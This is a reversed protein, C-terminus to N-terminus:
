EKDKESPVVSGDGQGRTGRILLVVNILISESAFIILLITMILGAVRDSSESWQIHLLNDFYEVIGVVAFLRIAVYCCMFMLMTRIIAHKFSRNRRLLVTAVIVCGLVISPLLIDAEIFAQIRALILLMGLITGGLVSSLASICLM